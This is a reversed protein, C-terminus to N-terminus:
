YNSIKTVKYSEVLQLYRNYFEERRDEAHLKAVQANVVVRTDLNAINKLEAPLHIIQWQRALNELYNLISWGATQHTKNNKILRRPNSALAQWNPLIEKLWSNQAILKQYTNDTDFLPVLSALWYTFYLDDNSLRFDSLSLHEDSVWFSLCFTDKIKDTRPRLNLIKLAGVLFLRSLWLRNAKTVIFFDIDGESRLNHAGIQNALCVLKIWPLRALWWSAKLARQFKRDSINYRRQRTALIDERGRLFYFGDQCIVSPHAFNNLDTLFDGYNKKVESWRWLEWPTLPYNFLNFYSIVNMLNMFNFALLDITAMLQFNFTFV